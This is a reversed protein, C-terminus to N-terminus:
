CLSVSIRDIARAVEEDWFQQRRTFFSNYIDGLNTKALRLWSGKNNDKKSSFANYFEAKTMITLAKQDIVAQLLCNFNAMSQQSTELYPVYTMKLIDSYYMKTAEVKVMKDIERDFNDCTYGFQKPLAGQWISISIYKGEMFMSAGSTVMLHQERHFLDLDEFTEPVDEM